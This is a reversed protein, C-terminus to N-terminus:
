TGPANRTMRWTRGFSDHRAALADGLRRRGFQRDPATEGSRTQQRVHQHRLVAVMQRQIALRFDIRAVADIQIARGQGIPHSLRARQHARQDLRDTRVHHRGLPHM